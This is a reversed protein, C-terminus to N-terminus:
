KIYSDGILEEECVQEGKDRVGCLHWVADEAREQHDQGTPGQRITTIQM